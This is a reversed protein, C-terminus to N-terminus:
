KNKLLHEEHTKRDYLIINLTIREVNKTNGYSHYTGGEPTFTVVRNPKWEMEGVYDSANDSTYVHTGDGYESLYWVFTCLKWPADIHIPYVYGPPCINIEYMVGTDATTEFNMLKCAERLQPITDKAISALEHDFDIIVSTRGADDVQRERASPKSRILSLINNYMEPEVFNDFLHYEWPDNFKQYIM